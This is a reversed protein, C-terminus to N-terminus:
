PLRDCRFGLRDADQDTEAMRNRHWALHKRHLAIEREIAMMNDRRDANDSYDFRECRLKSGSRHYLGDLDKEHYGCLDCKFSEDTEHFCNGCLSVDAIANMM